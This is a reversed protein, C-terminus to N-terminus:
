LVLDGAGDILQMHALDASLKMPQGPASASGPDVRACVEAGNVRFYVITEMGMPEVVDATVMFEYREGREQGRPDTIHEPRLGFTLERDVHPRYRVVRSEPVPLALTDTLRVQLGSGAQELRCSLFNM